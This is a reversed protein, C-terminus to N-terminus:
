ATLNLNTASIRVTTHSNTCKDVYHFSGKKTCGTLTVTLTAVSTTKEPLQFVLGLLGGRLNFGLNAPPVIIGGISIRMVILLLVFYTWLRRTNRQLM